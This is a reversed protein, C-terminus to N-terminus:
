HLMQEQLRKNLFIKIEIIISFDKNFMKYKNVKRRWLM